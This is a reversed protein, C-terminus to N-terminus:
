AALKAEPFKYPQGTEAIWDLFENRNQYILSQLLEAAEDIAKDQRLRRQLAVNFSPHKQPISAIAEHSYLYRECSDFRKGRVFAMAIHIARANRSFPALLFPCFDRKVAPHIERALKEIAKVKARKIQQINSAACKIQNKLAIKAMAIRLDSTAAIIKKFHM